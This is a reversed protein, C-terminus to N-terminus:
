RMGLVASLVLGSLSLLLCLTWAVYRCWQSAPGVKRGKMRKIIHLGSSHDCWAAQDADEEKQVAEDEDWMSSLHDKQAAHFKSSESILDFTKGQAAQDANKDQFAAGVSSEDSPDDQRRMIVNTQTVPEEKTDKNEMIM